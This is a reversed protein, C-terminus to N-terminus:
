QTGNTLRAFPIKAGDAKRITVSEPALAELADGRGIHWVLGSAPAVAPLDGSLGIAVPSAFLDNVTWGLAALEAGHQLLLAEALDAQQRQLGADIGPVAGCRLRALIDGYSASTIAM